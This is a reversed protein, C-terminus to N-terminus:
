RRKNIEETIEKKFEELDKTETEKSNRKRISIKGAEREKDGLICLYPVKEEQAKRIKYNLTQSSLDTEVRIKDKLRVEVDQAYDHVRSTIPLIKVQLPHLWVPLAFNYHELLIGIFRELSGVIVRHLMVPRHKKGDSGIYSLNFREPLAFDCQITACQWPRGLADKIKIDIKPGYFAGEGKNIKFEKSQSELTRKLIDEANNWDKEEGIFKKPRTSLEYEYENFGFDSMASKVFEIIGSIEDLLMDKTCFIHADDQTFGRVRLLGHLVGSKEHRYVTGLEFFRLPLENYSRISSSYVLIHAPCNMPKVAYEQNDVEFIYMNEKYFDYHGSKQWIDSKMIHPGYILQYGRIIHEKKLYDEITSRLIAGKPHYIVLGPGVERHMSFYGAAQAKRHDRKKAEEVRKLFNELEEKSDFATGYIRTLQPNNESGRWYAGATNLLKFHKIEGTSSVHSGKCLDIFDGNEYISIKEDELDEILELKYPENLKKFLKIAENKSLEQRRFEIDEKVIKRMEKEILPLDEEKLPKTLDFDYYFGNEIPPGIGLRVDKYLRKVAQALIHSTSHRLADLDM